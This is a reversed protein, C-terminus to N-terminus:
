TSPHYYGYHLSYSAHFRSVYSSHIYSWVAARVDLYSDYYKSYCVTNKDAYRFRWDNCSFEMVEILERAPKYRRRNDATLFLVYGIQIACQSCLFGSDTDAVDKEQHKYTHCAICRIPKMVSVGATKASVANYTYSDRNNIEGTDVDIAGCGGDVYPVILRQNCGYDHTMESFEIPEDLLQVKHGLWNDVKRYGLLELAHQFMHGVAIYESDTYATIYTMSHSNVLARNTIVSDKDITYALSWGLAHKYCMYPNLKTQEYLAIINRGRTMCSQAGKDSEILIRIVAEMEDDSQTFRVTNHIKYGNWWEILQTIETTSLMPFMRTIMRGEKIQTTRGTYPKSLEDTHVTTVQKAPDYKPMYHKYEADQLLGRGYMYQMRVFLPHKRYGGSWYLEIEFRREQETM